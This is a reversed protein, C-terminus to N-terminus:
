ARADAAPYLKASELVVSDYRALLGDRVKDLAEFIDIADVLQEGICEGVGFRQYRFSVSWKLM